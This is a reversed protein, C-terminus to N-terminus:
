EAAPLDIWFRSGQGLASSVGSQGGMRAVAKRVIALGIGTGPYAGVGHLREFVDFIREHHEPAIGLGHDVVWLRARGASVEAQIEVRPTAGPPVFKLANSMLNQAVLALTTAHGVVRPLPERVDVRAGRSQIEPQLQALAVRVVEDLAVPTLPLHARSIRGYELLDNILADLRVSADLIRRAYERGDTDLQDAYDEALARTMGHMARLPARLDHSVSYAFLELEAVKEQLEETREAVRQELERSQEALRRSTEQLEQEQRNRATIDQFTTQVARQGQWQVAIGMTEVVMPTGDVKLFVEELVPVEVQDALLRQIREVIVARYDPHVVNMVDFGVLDHGPPFGLLSLAKANAYVVRGAAHVVIAYPATEVLRRYREESERLAQEARYRPTGDIMLGLYGAVSGDRRTDPVLVAEVVKTGGREAPYPVLKQQVVVHGSLVRELHPRVAEFAEPGLSQQVSVGLLQKASLGFLALYARNAYRYVYDKDIYAAPIPVADFMLRASEFQAPFGESGARLREVEIELEAVRARLRRPEDSAGAPM